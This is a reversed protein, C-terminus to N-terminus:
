TLGGDNPASSSTSSESGGTLGGDNLVKALESAPPAQSAPPQQEAPASEAYPKISKLDDKDNPIIGSTADSPVYWAKYQGAAVKVLYAVDKGNAWKYASDGGWISESDALYAAFTDEKATRYFAQFGDDSKVISDLVIAGVEKDSSGQSVLVKGDIKIRDPIATTDASQWETKEQSEVVQVVPPDILADNSITAPAQSGTNNATPINNTVSVKVDPAPAPQGWNDWAMKAKETVGGPNSFGIIGILALIALLHWVKIM